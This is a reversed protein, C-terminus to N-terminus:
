ILMNVIDFEDFAAGEGDDFIVNYLQTEDNYSRVTGVFWVGDYKKKVRTKNKVFDYHGEKDRCLQHFSSSDEILSNKEDFHLSSYVQFWDLEESEGNAYQVKFIREKKYNFFCRIIEGYYATKAKRKYILKCLLSTAKIKERFNAYEIDKSMRSRDLVSIVEFEDDDDQNDDPLVEDNDCTAEGIEEFDDGQDLESEESSHESIPEDFYIYNTNRAKTRIRKSVNNSNDITPNDWYSINVFSNLSTTSCSASSNSDNNVAWYNILSTDRIDVEM